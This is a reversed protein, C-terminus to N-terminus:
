MTSQMLPAIRHHSERRDDPVEVRVARPVLLSPAYLTHRLCVSKNVGYATHPLLHRAMAMWPTDSVRLMIRPTDWLTLSRTGGERFSPEEAILGLLPSSDGFRLLDRISDAIVALPTPTTRLCYHRM